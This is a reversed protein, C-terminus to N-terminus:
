GIRTKESPECQVVPSVSGPKRSATECYDLLAVREARHRRIGDLDGAGILHRPGLRVSGDNNRRVVCGRAELALLLGLADVSVAPGGRLIVRESEIAKAM